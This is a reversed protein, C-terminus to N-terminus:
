APIALAEAQSTLERKLIQRATCTCKGCESGVCLARNLDRVNRAGEDIAQQIQRETINNCICVYM